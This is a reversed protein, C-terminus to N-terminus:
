DASTARFIEIAIQTGGGNPRVSIYATEAREGDMGYCSYVFGGEPLEEGAWEGAEGPQRLAPLSRDYFARV